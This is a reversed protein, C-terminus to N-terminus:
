AMTRKLGNSFGTTDLFTEGSAVQQRTQEFNSSISGAVPELAVKINPKVDDITNIELTRCVFKGVIGGAFVALITGWFMARGPSPEPFLKLPVGAIDVVPMPKVPAVNHLSRMKKAKAHHEDMLRKADSVNFLSADGQSSQDWKGRGTNIKGGLLMGSYFNPRNYEIFFEGFKTKEPRAVYYGRDRKFKDFHVQSLDLKPQHSLIEPLVDQNNQTTFDKGESKLRGEQELRARHKKVALQLDAKFYSGENAKLKGAYIKMPDM